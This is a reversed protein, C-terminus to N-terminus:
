TFVFPQINIFTQIYVIYQLSLASLLYASLLLHFSDKNHVMLGWFPGFAYQLFLNGIFLKDKQCVILYLYSCMFIVHSCSPMNHSCLSSASMYLANNILYNGDSHPCSLMIHELKGNNKQWTGIFKKL